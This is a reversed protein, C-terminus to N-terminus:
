KQWRPKIPKIKRRREESADNVGVSFTNATFVFDPDVSKKIRVLKGYKEKSDYYKDWMTDLNTGCDPDGPRSFTGWLVRRDYDSFIGGAGTSFFM